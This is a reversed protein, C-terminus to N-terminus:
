ARVDLRQRSWNQIFPTDSRTQQDPDALMEGSLEDQGDATHADKGTDPNFNKQSRQDLEIQVGGEGLNLGAQMLANELTKAGRMLAEAAAPDRAALVAQVRGDSDVEVRVDVKGLEAPDLRIEFSSNKGDFRQLLKDSVQSLLAAMQAPNTARPLSAAAETKADHKVLQTQQLVDGSLDDETLLAFDPAEPNTDALALEIGDAQSAPAEGSTNQGASATLDAGSSNQVASLASPQSGSANTTGSSVGSTQSIGRASASKQTGQAMPDGALKGSVGAAISAPMAIAETTAMMQSTSMLANVATQAGAGSTSLQQAAGASATTQNQTTNSSSPATHDRSALTAIRVEEASAGGSKAANIAASVFDVASSASGTRVSDQTATQAVPVISSPLVDSELPLEMGSSLLLDASKLATDPKLSNDNHVQIMGSLLLQDTQKGGENLLPARDSSDPASNEGAKNEPRPLANTVKIRSTNISAEDSMFKDFAAADGRPTGPSSRTFAPEEILATAVISM